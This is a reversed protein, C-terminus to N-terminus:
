WIFGMKTNNNDEPLLLDEECIDVSFNQKKRYAAHAMARLLL